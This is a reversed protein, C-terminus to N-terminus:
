VETAKLGKDALALIADRGVAVDQAIVGREDILFAVPTVFVGYEKSLKWKEQLVVPFKIGYQQAKRINEEPNGRGVLVFAMGDNAHELHLRALEPALQDCPGCQPDSFVLLVPKGRYEDLSVTHGQLDPLRFAPASTGAKLGDREIRSEALPREGLLKKRQHKGNSSEYRHAQPISLQNAFEVVQDAGSALPRVVRGTEDLLYAVPTGQQDFPKPRQAEEPLLIPCKLGHERAQMRNSGVDGYSLLVLRVDQKELSSHLRALGPAIADCFGCEFNWNVLLVRKGRFEELAVLKGSLDPFSFPPFVTGLLKDADANNETSHPDAAQAGRELEDLRLLIRGQQKVLEYFGVWISILILLLLAITAIVM